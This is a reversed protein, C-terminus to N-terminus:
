RDTYITGKSKIGTTFRTIIEKGYNDDIPIPGVTYEFELHKAGKNLRVIQTIYSSFIQRVETSITGQIVTNIAIPSISQVDGDPRFIYAGSNQGGNAWSRYYYWNQTITQTVNTHKNYISSLLGTLGSFVVQLYENEIVLDANPSPTEEHLAHHQSVHRHHHHHHHSSTKVDAATAAAANPQIM